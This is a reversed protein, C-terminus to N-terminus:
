QLTKTVANVFHYVRITDDEYYITADNHSSMYAECIAMARAEVISRLSANRYYGTGLESGSSPLPKLAMEPTVPVKTGLPIKEVLVFIHPTPIPFRFSKRSVREVNFETVFRILEYHWGRGLVQQYQEVPAVLTWSLPPFEDRLRLYTEAAVSYELMESVYPKPHFYVGLAVIALIAVVRRLNGRIAYRLASAVQGLITAAVLSFVMRTRQPEILQPLGLVRAECMAFLVLCTLGLGAAPRRGSARRHLVSLGGALVLAAACVVSTMEPKPISRLTDAVSTPGSSFELIQTSLAWEVSHLRQHFVLGVSYPLTGAISTLLGGIGLWGVQRLGISRGIVAPLLICATGILMYFSIFPHSVLTMFYAALFLLLYRRDDTGVYDNLFVLGPLLFLMAFEQPLAATQRWASAPLGCEIGYVFSAVAAAPLDSTFRYVAYFVALVILVGVMAGAYRFVWYPDVFAMRDLLSLVAHMGHPYIGDRYLEGSSLYKSWALHVYADSCSYYAKTIAHHMRLYTPYAMACVFLLGDWSLALRTLTRLWDRVMRTVRQLLPLLVAQVLDTRRDIMDLFQGFTTDPNGRSSNPVGARRGRATRLAFFCLFATSLWISIPDYLRLLALVHVVVTFVATSLTLNAFLRDLWPQGAPLVITRWPLYIFILCFFVVVKAGNILSAIMNLATRQVSAPQAKFLLYLAANLVALILLTTLCGMGTTLGRQSGSDPAQKRM